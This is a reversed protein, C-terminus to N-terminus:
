ACSKWYRRTEANNVTTLIINGSSNATRETRDRYGIIVIFFPQFIGWCFVFVPTFVNFSGYIDSDVSSPACSSAARAAELRRRKEDNRSSTRKCRAERRNNFAVSVGLRTSYVFGLSRGVARNSSGFGFRASWYSSLPTSSPALAAGRARPGLM